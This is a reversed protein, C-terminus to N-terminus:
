GKPSVMGTAAIGLASLCARLSEVHEDAVSLATPGLRAHILARTQPWQQLGDAIIPSPVTLVMHKELRPPPSLGSALLLQVAPPVDQGCRQMYWTSLSDLTMGARRGAALSTPTLRYQLKGNSASRPVVEAFRQLQTELLLDSRVQDISLTVGDPEVTVCPEPPLCYDRTGAMRFHRFDIDAENAVVALRETLRVAPLGRSLAEQLDSASSFEMLSASPYVQIRERKNSWTRLAELVATPTAKMGRGELVQVMSEFSEGAELARYVSEPQLQLTCAAGLTKWAAFQSLRAILEPTLGQRYALIELNPQVLLTQPFQPAAPPADGIGLLWRGHASLRVLWGSNGRVAQVMRLSYALGTLFRALAAVLPDIASKKRPVANKWYPHHEQVWAAVAEPNAWGREPLRSLLLLCLLYASPFPNGPVRDPQHGAEINWADLHPLASWLERLAAPLGQSWAEPFNGAKLEGDEQKLLGVRAGLAAALLGPDPVDSPGDGPVTTLLPDGRLRELDRKFFDGQQTQRLTTASVQQWLASLRLPWELGDAEHIIPGKGGSPPETAGPCDPLGLDAGLTRTCAGPHAFTWTSGSDGGTLWHAFSKLRSAKRAGEPDPLSPYLLGCELLATIPALGDEAGLAMALEVLNGVRWVSQRSHGLLALVRRAKPDLDKLRRDLVAPNTLIDISRDILEDVPWQNRPRCLNRAVQRLLAPEYRRLTQRVRETWHDAESSM